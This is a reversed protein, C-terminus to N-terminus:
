FGSGRVMTELVKGDPSLLVFNAEAGPVIEGYGTLGAARAPNCTAARVADRLSWDAFQMINRLAQDMTLVS